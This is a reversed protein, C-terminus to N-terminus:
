SLSFVIVRVTLKITRQVCASHSSSCFSAARKPSETLPQIRRHTRCARTSSM